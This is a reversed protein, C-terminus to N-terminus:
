PSYLPEFGRPFAVCVGETDVAVQYHIRAELTKPDLSIKEVMSRILSKALPENKAANLDAAFGDLMKRVNEETLVALARSQAYESELRAMDAQLAKRRQELSDVKQLAPAPDQLGAALELYRNIQGNLLAIEQRGERAPDHDGDAQKRAENVLARIFQKSRMDSLVMQLVAQDVSAVPVKRGPIRYYKGSDAKWVRGEATTLLGSLLYRSAAAKGESVAAGIRSNKLRHLIAEAEPRTILAPHTDEQIVWDERPRRKSGGKYAGSIREAHVNWVTAGSYTLANWEFGVLTSHNHELGTETAAVTRPTGSARLKLYREILSASESRELVTKTVPEGERITGTNITKLRYGFPARGGARFGQRVNESMGALGKERSMLSHVEDMAEFVADLVVSTIPDTEPVKAYLIVVGRRSCEHKFVQASYRRRSLRSTDVMLLHNWTRGPAKLAQLLSQLGPRQDTKGSEVVDEFSADIQLSKEQALKTLERRQSDISVDSRDKSSRLYIAALNKM